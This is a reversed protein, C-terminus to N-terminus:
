GWRRRRTACAPRPTSAPSAWRGRRRAPRRLLDRQHHGPQDPLDGGPGPDTQGIRRALAGLAEDWAIRRFGAEGAVAACRTVWAVSAACSRRPRAGCRRSTLWCRRISPTPPTSRSCASDRRASTCATSPGTTCAPSASRAATARARPSSTSRTSPIPATPGRWRPWTGTTTRSRCGSATRACAWGARIPAMRHAAGALGDPREEPSYLNCSPPRTAADAFSGRWPSGRRALPRARGAGVPASVAVVAGFGAAWAKQVIEFGARGSVYLGLDTAPLAGDLLLRGSWRTSPTTAVSTRACSCWARGDSRVGGGRAGRRHGAFLDQDPRVAAPVGALVPSDVLARRRATPAIRDRLTTSPPRAACGARM